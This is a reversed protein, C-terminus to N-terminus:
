AGSPYYGYGPGGSPGYGPGVGPLPGSPGGGSVPPTVGGGPGAGVAETSALSHFSLVALVALAALAPWAVFARLRSLPWAALLALPGLAPLYFRIVHVATGGGPGGGPGGALHATWTYAFYLLWLGLWGAGLAVAVAADRRVGASAAEGRHRWARAAVWALGALAVVSLPMARVLPGPLGRLNPGLASLSFTIEGPSYGTSTASGYAWQDFALVGAGFLAVSGLWLAVTRGGLRARRALLAVAYGESSFRRAFAEGNGPGVGAVVCIPREVREAPPM